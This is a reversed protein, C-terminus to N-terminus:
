RSIAPRIGSFIRSSRTRQEGSVRPGCCRAKLLLNPCSITTDGTSGRVTHGPPRFIARPREGASMPTARIMWPSPSDWIKTTDASARPGYFLARLLSNQWLSMRGGGLHHTSYGGTTPFDGSQTTGTIYVNGQYDTALHWGYDDSSGGLYTSWLITGDPRAKLVYADGSSGGGHYQNDYSGTTPFDGSTTSGTLILNGQSDLVCGPYACDTRSGGLFSTNLLVGSQTFHAVFVDTGRRAPPPVAFSPFDLSATNGVVFITHDAAVGVWVCGDLADGGLYTSWEMNLQVSSPVHQSPVAYSRAPWLVCCCAVLCVTLCVRASCSTRSAGRTSGM